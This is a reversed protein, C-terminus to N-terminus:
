YCIIIKPFSSMAPFTVGDDWVDNRLFVLFLSGCLLIAYLLLILM